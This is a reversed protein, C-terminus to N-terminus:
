KTAAGERRYDDTESVTTDFQIQKSRGSNESGSLRYSADISQSGRFGSLKGSAVAASARGVTEYLSAYANALTTNASQTLQSAQATSQMAASLYRSVAVAQDAASGMPAIEGALRTQEGAARVSFQAEEMGAATSVAANTISAQEYLATRSAISARLRASEAEVQAAAAQARATVGSNMATSGGAKTAEARNAISVAQAKAAFVSYESKVREAESAWQLIDARYKEVAVEAKILYASRASIKARLAALRQRDAELESRYVDVKASEADAEAAFVAATVANAEALAEQQKLTSKYRDIKATLVSLGANYAEAEADLMSAAANFKLVAAKTKALESQGVALARDMDLEYLRLEVDMMTAHAAAFLKTAAVIADFKWREKAVQQSVASINAERARTEANYTDVAEPVRLGRLAWLARMSADHQQAISSLRGEAPSIFVEPDFWDEGGLAHGVSRFVQDFLEPTFSLQYTDLNATEATLRSQLSSFARDIVAVDLKPLTPLAPAEGFVPATLSSEFLAPADPHPVSGIPLALDPANGIAPLEALAPAGLSAQASVDPAQPFAVSVTDPLPTWGLSPRQHVNFQVEFKDTEPLEPIELPEIAPASFGALEPEAYEPVVFEIEPVEGPSLSLASKIAQEAQAGANNAVARLSSLLGDARSAMTQVTSLAGEAISGGFFAPGITAGPTEAGPFFTSSESFGSM